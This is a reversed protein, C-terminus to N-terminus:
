LTVHQLSTLLDGECEDYTPDTCPVIFHPDSPFTYFRKTRSNFVLDVHLNICTHVELPKVPTGHECTLCLMMSRTNHPFPPPPFQLSSLSSMMKHDRFDRPNGM